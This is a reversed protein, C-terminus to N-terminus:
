RKLLENWLARSSPHLVRSNKVVRRLLPHPYYHYLWSAERDNGLEIVREALYTAHKKPDITKPDVDWFLSQRFKIPVIGKKNNKVSTKRAKM